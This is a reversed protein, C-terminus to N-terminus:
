QNIVGEIALAPSHEGPQQLVEATGIHMKQVDKKLTPHGFAVLDKILRHGGDGFDECRLHIRLNPHREVVEAELRVELEDVETAPLLIGAFLVAIAFRPM